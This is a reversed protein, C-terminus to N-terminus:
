LLGGIFMITILSAMYYGLRKLWKIDSELKTLRHNVTILLRDFQKM